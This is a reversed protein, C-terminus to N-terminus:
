DRRPRNRTGAMSMNAAAVPTVFACASPQCYVLVEADDEGDCSVPQQQQQQQQQQPWQPRRSGASSGDEGVALNPRDRGEQEDTMMFQELEFLSIKNDNHLDIHQRLVQRARPASVVSYSALFFTPSFM